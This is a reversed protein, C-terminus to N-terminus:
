RSGAEEPPTGTVADVVRVRSAGPLDVGPLSASLEDPSWLEARDFDAALLAARAASVDDFHLQVQGRVAAGLAVTFARDIRGAESVVHLDSLYRGQPFRHMEHALRRWLEVVDARSFYNLLGETVVAVGRNRDLSSFIRSLQVGTMVDAEEVRHRPHPLRVADLAARKHAAMQPLDVEVYVLDRYRETFGLGRPSMGCALEVVQTVEGTTIAEHLLHDIIRHRALLFGELTPGGVLRSALM